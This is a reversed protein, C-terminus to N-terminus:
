TQCTPLRVVLGDLEAAAKIQCSLRSNPRREAAVHELMGEESDSPPALRDAHSEVYCHCTACACSGGCEAEIGEIGNSAAGQMVTWGDPLDIVVEQGDPQIYTVKAM